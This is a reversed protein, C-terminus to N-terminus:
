IEEFVYFTPRCIIIIINISYYDNDGEEESNLCHTEESWKTRGGKRLNEFTESAKLVTIFLLELCNRTHSENSIIKGNLTTNMSKRM